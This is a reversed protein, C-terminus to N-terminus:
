SFDLLATGYLNTGDSVFSIIDRASATTTLTPATGGPWKFVANWTITRSGTGDQIVHLLYTAGDVLNTPAAMTRNGGLTVGCVQNASADWNITAEDTLTTANFNQTATYEQSTGLGALTDTANPLTLTRNDSHNSAITVKKATTAGSLEFSMTKTTDTGDAVIVNGTGKPFVNLDVNADDGAASIIPGSGTAQNEINVHNVASGDETFTILERTGDGIANGNVDLQGGLQPTTDEVVNNIGAANSWSLTGSGNTTMVQGNSGDGDPLTWTVSTTVAAPAKWGLANTGNDTDEALLITGSDTSTGDIIVDGTGKGGLHLDVNTDDGTATLIPGSSAAQNEINIHNVASGDETFTILERTGDGIAQGNVDLQGGLQPTTDSVLDSSPSGWSAQGSGDTVLAQGNTGDAQPWKVGDLIIDGTTDPTLTISGATDTSSITNGDIQLNDVSVAGTSVKLASSTGEGDEVTRLTADVGTNGNSVQLLDKFSDKIKRGSLTAM